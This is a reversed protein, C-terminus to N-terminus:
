SPGLLAVIEGEQLELDIGELISIRQGSPQDYGKSVGKLAILSQLAPTKVM